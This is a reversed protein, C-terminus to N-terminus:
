LAPKNAALFISPSLLNLLNLENRVSPPQSLSSGESLGTIECHTGTDPDRTADGLAISRLRSTGAPVLPAM